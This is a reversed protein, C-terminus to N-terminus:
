ILEDIEAKTLGLAKKLEDAEARCKRAAKETDVFDKVGKQYEAKKEATAEKIMEEKAEALAKKELKTEPANMKDREITFNYDIFDNVPNRIGKPTSCFIRKPINRETYNGCLSEALKELREEAQKLLQLIKDDIGSGEEINGITPVDKVETRDKREGCQSCIVKGLSRHSQVWQHDCELMDESWWFYREKGEIELVWGEYVAPKLIIAYKGKMEDREPGWFEEDEPKVIKVKDGVKFKM